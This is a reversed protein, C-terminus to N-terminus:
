APGGPGVPQAQARVTTFFGEIEQSARDGGHFGRWHIRVRGVLRYCAEISVVFTELEGGRRGYVLLAEVDPQAHGVLPTAAAIDQLADLSLASEAAGAPSPYLAVWRAQQSNFFIFALRVPIQLAAWQAESLRFAPDILVRDPVARYRVGGPSVKPLSDVCARCACLLTQRDLDVLHPHDQGELAQACVQCREGASPVARWGRAFPQLAGLANV